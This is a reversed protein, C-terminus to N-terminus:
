ACWVDVVTKAAVFIYERAAATVMEEEDDMLIDEVFALLDEQATGDFFVTMRERFDKAALPELLAWNNEEANGLKEETAPAPEFRNVKRYAKRIVLVLYLLLDREEEMLLQFGESMVYAFVLPQRQKFNEIMAVYAAEDQSGISEAAADIVQEGIM